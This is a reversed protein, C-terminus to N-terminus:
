TGDGLLHYKTRPIRRVCVGPGEASRGDVNDDDDVGVEVVNVVLAVAMMKM